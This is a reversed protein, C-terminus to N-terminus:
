PNLNTGPGTTQDALINRMLAIEQTQDVIMGQALRRLRADSGYVLELKAMEIAGQHHPIMARAFDQDPDASPTICMGADMQLMVSQLARHFESTPAPTPVALWKGMPPTPRPVFAIALAVGIFLALLHTAGTRWWRSGSIRTMFALTPLTM